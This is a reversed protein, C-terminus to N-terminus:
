SPMPRRRGGLNAEVARSARRRRRSTPPDESTVADDATVRPVAAHHALEEALFHDVHDERVRRIVRPHKAMDKAIALATV